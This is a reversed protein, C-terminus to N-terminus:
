GTEELQRALWRREPTSRALALARQYAAAARPLDGAERWLAAEVSPLLHYGALLPDDAVGELDALGAAPGDVRARAIARNLAVVPSGTLELLDDYLALVQRWDTDDWNPAVAHCAAIGAELHYRSVVDGASARDLSRIGEAIRGRDWRSREQDRLLFLESESGVRAPFRAAHLLMLALLAWSAPVGTDPHTALLRGLRIAEDALDQRILADGATAAYGENFMLYISEQVSGLRASLEAGSPVGFSDEADQLQRRARVLRQAVASPKALFARAVENASFGGVLKLTLAVRTAPSLAPSCALFMLGLEDDEIPEAEHRLRVEPPQSEGALHHALVPAKHGAMTDHRLRDLARNRAVQFLWAEPREPVGGFSWQQLARVLADQVADEALAIHQPGLQRALAAVLHGSQRRFLHDVLDHSDV